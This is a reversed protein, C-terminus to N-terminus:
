LAFLASRLRLMVTRGFRQRLGLCCCVYFDLHAFEQILFASFGSAVSLQGLQGIANSACKTGTRADSAINESVPHLVNGLAWHLGV